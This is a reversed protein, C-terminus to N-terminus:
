DPIEITQWVPDPCKSKRKENRLNENKFCNNRYTNKLCKGHQAPQSLFYVFTVQPQKSFIEAPCHHFYKLLATIFFVFGWVAPIVHSDVISIEIKVWCVIGSNIKEAWFLRYLWQVDYLLECGRICFSGNNWVLATMSLLIGNRNKNYLKTLSMGQVYKQAKIM